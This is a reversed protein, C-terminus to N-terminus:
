ADFLDQDFPRPEPPDRLPRALLAIQAGEGKFKEVALRVVQRDDRWLVGKLADLCAKAVNDVDFGGKMDPTVSIWIRVEYSHFSPRASAVEKRMFNSVMSKLRRTQTTAADFRLLVADGRYAIQVKGRGQFAGSSAGDQQARRRM